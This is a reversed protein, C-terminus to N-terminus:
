CMVNFYHNLEYKKVEDITKCHCTEMIEKFLRSETNNERVTMDFDILFFTEDERVMINDAHLDGHIYGVEHLTNILEEVKENRLNRNNSMYEEYTEKGCEMICIGDYRPAYTLSLSVLDICERIKPGVQLREMEKYLQKLTYWDNSRSANSHPKAVFYQSEFKVLYVSDDQWVGSFAEVITYGCLKLSEYINKNIEVKKGRKGYTFYKKGLSSPENLVTM